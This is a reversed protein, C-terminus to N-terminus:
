QAANRILQGYFHIGRLYDDVPLSEDTGHVGQLAARDVRFPAFRYVNPTVAVLHRSDTAGLVLGPAVLVDELTQAITRQLLEFAPGRVPSVPSPESPQGLLRVEIGEDDIVRKVHAVVGEVTTGPLLRFNAVARARAPLVNEKVSGELQTVATTTRVLANAEPKRTYGFTLLPSFLWRNALVLRLGPSAEPALFRLTEGAPGSLDPPFPHEELRTVARAIVGAATRPPPMSSHGGAASAILEVSAFGKEAIGVLAVPRPAGPVLGVAVALGEDLVLEVRTRQELLRRAFAPAGVGLVEEDGGFFLIVTRRPAFGATLLAETAELIGLLSGKDDRAGRGWVRGDAIAGGFPPHTWRAETGPEVPVVDSHAMLVLAPLAPDAGRWTLQLSRGEVAQVELAAHTRPFAERLFRHFGLFAAEDDQSRDQHSVTQFQIARSLRASAQASDIPLPAAREASLQLSRVTAARAAAIALLLALVGLAALALGRGIRRGATVAQHNACAAM